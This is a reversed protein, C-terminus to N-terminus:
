CYYNFFQNLVQCTDKGNGGACINIPPDIRSRSYREFISACNVDNVIPVVAELLEIPDAPSTAEHSESNSEETDTLTLNYALFV